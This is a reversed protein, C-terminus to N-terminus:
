AGHSEPDSTRRSEERYADRFPVGAKVKELARATAELKPDRAVELLRVENWEIREFVKAVLPLMATIRDHARFLPGKLLQFDRHYGSPLDRVVDVIQAREGHIQRSHGRLLEILDPNRKQPMMSSGTTLDVPLKAFAFEESTFLWLDAALKEIVLAISELASVYALEARGRAHQVATVPEECGEFGLERAVFARDLTLPVGYGAGSGLPCLRIRRSALWLDDLTAELGVAHALAFDRLSSPMARRLHTYGPLPIQGHRAALEHASRIAQEVHSRTGRIAERLWLRVDVTVQENRSRATHLKKGADGVIEILRAEVASHVDEATAEVNFAGRFFEERIATLGLQIASLDEKSILGVRELGAAHALSGIIDHEILRRDMLWDDGITFALMHPDIADGRDWIPRSSTM